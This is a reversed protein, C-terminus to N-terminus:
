SPPTEDRHWWERLTRCRGEDTFELVFVGDLKVRTGNATRRLSASWHAIVTPAQVALIRFCFAIDTQGQPVAQWYKLVGDPGTAPESFPTEFYRCDESFLAAALQPARKEWAQGYKTLWVEAAEHTIAM